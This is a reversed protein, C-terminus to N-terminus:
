TPRPPRSSSSATPSTSRAAASRRPTSARAAGLPHHGRADVDGALMFTNTMRPMPMHAFSERRGNGTLPMGMLRANLRDQLYGRLIGNEILVTRGTPTGEDDVNLSGRRNPSRATTSWPASRRRSASASAAASPRSAAQPQLRGRPRPRDGRAAPHGALGPRAGGDDRRGARRRRELNRLAQRPPRVWGQCREDETLFSFEVRGGGGATGQQRQRRGRRHLHRQPARAAARRRRRRRQLHRDLVIKQEVGLSAIVNTIRPDHRRAAVDIRNLLAIKDDLAAELPPQACRTSTTRRGRPACRSRSRAHRGRRRHGAGHAGRAAARRRSVEDSHAYGTKDGAVVRVGVGQSVNKAAKKVIGKRSSSAGRLHPVRLLPRRLRGPARDRTAITEELMASTSRSATSSSGSRSPNPRWCPPRPSASKRRM